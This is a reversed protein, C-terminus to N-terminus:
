FSYTLAVEAFRPPVIATPKLFNRGSLVIQSIVSNINLAERIPVHQAVDLKLREIHESFTFGM